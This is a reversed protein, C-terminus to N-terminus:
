HLLLHLECVKDDFQFVLQLKSLMDPVAIKWSVYYYALLHYGSFKKGPVLHLQYDKEDPRIGQTGLRAIEFAIEKTKQVPINEFYQLADVMFMVVAMNTGISKAKEQFTKM